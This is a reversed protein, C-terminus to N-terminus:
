AMSGVYSGSFRQVQTGVSYGQLGTEQIGRSAPKSVVRLPRDGERHIESTATEAWGTDEAAGDGQIDPAVQPTARNKLDNEM